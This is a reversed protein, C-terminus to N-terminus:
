QLKFRQNHVKLGTPEGGVKILWVDSGGAGYSETVGTIIYGDVSTPSVSAGWDSHAGGFTKNWIENGNLDTKILWVDSSSWFDSGGTGYSRTEGTIIYGGDLTESVFNGCDGENGGFTKNWLENGNLDTKILWVDSGGAGYSHGTIIYGSDSTKAVSNGEDYHTGGYTANWIENGNSDTKILWVDADGSYSYTEGTIIYGGDSTEAVSNGWDYTGGYTENWIENGNSDTKILWVDNYHYGAGYSIGGTIVYGGDSTEAVSGGWDWGIGGFTKNWIENGNSDTKILWVDADGAGFLGIVGTIIYGGDQTEAVSNGVDDGIGGFTKNWIENGNSDTKILWVDADGAGYSETRGTIIYGGDSTEAVSFGMDDVTGGFTRNWEEEPAVTEETPIVLPLYDKNSSDIVYPSDGLGDGDSDTGNYDNWYNGGLYSGGVINKGSTKTINWTNVSSVSLTNDTNNFYNNYVLNKSSEYFEIGKYSNNLIKNGVV